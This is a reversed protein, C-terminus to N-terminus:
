PTGRVQSATKNRYVPTHAPTTQFTILLMLGVVLARGRADVQRAKQLIIQTATM